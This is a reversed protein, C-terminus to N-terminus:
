KKEPIVGMWKKLAMMFKSNREITLVHAPLDNGYYAGYDKRATEVASITLNQADVIIIVADFLRHLDAGLPIGNWAEDGGGCSVPVIVAILLM